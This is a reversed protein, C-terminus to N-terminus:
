DTIATDTLATLFAIINKQQNATLNLKQAPLTQHAPKGFFGVGGGQNYFQMVQNLNTYAGNHMYPATVASNRVSPTKFAYKHISIKTKNYRGLDNDLRQNNANSPIGIVETENQQFRVPKLGSFLPAFHCTGCKAKGMFLNFGNVEATTLTGKNQMYKDFRSNLAVLTQLYTAMAHAFNNQVANTNGAFAQQYLTKYTQAQALAQAKPEFNSNMEGVSNLVKLIQEELNEASNDWFYNRQYAVNWLSPANRALSGHGNINSSKSKNEAFAYNPNHCSACSRKQNSSLQQDFFLQRGLNIIAWNFPAGNALAKVNIANPSFLFQGKSFSTKYQPSNNGWLNKTIRLNNIAQAVQSIHQQLFIARNFTTFNTNSKLNVIAQQLTNIIANYSTDNHAQVVQICGQLASACESIAMESTGADFGAINLTAVRIQEEEVADLVNNESFQFSTQTKLVMAVQAQMYQLETNILNYNPPQQPNFLQEEIVQFGHPAIIGQDVEEDSVHPIPAGNLQQAQYAYFYELLTEAQKFYARSTNFANILQSKNKNNVQKYFVNLSTQLATIQQKFIAQANNTPPTFSLSFGAFLSILIVSSVFLKNIRM